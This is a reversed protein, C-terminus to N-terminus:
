GKYFYNARRGFMIHRIMRRAPESRRLPALALQALDIPDHPSGWGAPVAAVLREERLLERSM